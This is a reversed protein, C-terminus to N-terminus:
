EMVGNRRENRRANGRFGGGGLEAARSVVVVYDHGKAKCRHHMSPHGGHRQGARLLDIELWHTDTQLVEAQKRAFADAM